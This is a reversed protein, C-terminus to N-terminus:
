GEAGLDFILLTSTASACLRGRADTLKAEAFAVRRGLSLVAGEARVPGSNETLRRHYCVKLEVTTYGQESTLCTHVAAGCATDLVTTAYGGHVAGIYNYVALAPNGTLIARGKDVEKLAFGMTAEIPPRRGTAILKRLQDLGNLREENNRLVDMKGNKRPRFEGWDLQKRVSGGFM